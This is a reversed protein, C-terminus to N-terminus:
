ILSFRNLETDTLITFDTVKNIQAKSKIANMWCSSRNHESVGTRQFEDATLFESTDVVIKVICSSGHRVHKAAGKYKKSSIREKWMLAEKIDTTVSGPIFSASLDSVLVGKYFTVIM